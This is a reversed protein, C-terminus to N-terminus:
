FVGFWRQNQKSRWLLLCFVVLLLCSHLSGKFQHSKQGTCCIWTICLGDGASLCPTLFWQSSAPFLELIYKNSRVERVATFVVPFTEQPQIEAIQFKEALHWVTCVLVFAFVYMLPYKSHCVQHLYSPACPFLFPIHFKVSRTQILGAWYNCNNIM